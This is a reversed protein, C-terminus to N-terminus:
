LVPANIGKKTLLKTVFEKAPKVECDAPVISVGVIDINKLSLLILFAVMDDCNGDMDFYVKQKPANVEAKKQLLNTLFLSSAIITTLTILVTM